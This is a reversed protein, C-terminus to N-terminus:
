PLQVLLLWRCLQASPLSELLHLGPPGNRATTETGRLIWREELSTGSRSTALWSSASSLNLSQIKQNEFGCNKRQSKIGKILKCISLILLYRNLAHIQLIFPFFQAWIPLSILQLTVLVKLLNLFFTEKIIMDDHYHILFQKLFLISYTSWPIYGMDIAEMQKRNFINITYSNLAYRGLSLGRSGLIDGAM